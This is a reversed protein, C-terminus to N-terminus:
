RGGASNKLVAINVRLGLQGDSIWYLNKLLFQRTGTDKVFEALADDAEKRNRIISFDLSVLGNLIMQHHSPYTKPAIDAVILAVALVITM